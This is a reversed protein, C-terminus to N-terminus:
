ARPEHRCGLVPGDVEDAACLPQLLFVLLEAVLEVGVARVEVRHDLFVDLVVQEAQHKHNAM